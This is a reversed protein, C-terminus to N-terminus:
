NNKKVKNKKSIKEDIIKLAETITIKTTKLDTPISYNKKNYSLYDPRGKIGKKKIIKKQTAPHEGIVIEEKSKLHLDILEVAKNIGIETVDDEKLSIFKNNHKLYPGYPGISAMILKKSVPHEGVKRPLSLLKIAKELDIEENKMKKPISIRKPKDEDSSTELYRGYRGVKLLIEQNTKTHMGILKGDGSLEKNDENDGLAHSYACGNSEKSYNTCGIFPGSFAFKITLEGNDCKPCKIESHTCNINQTIPIVKCTNGLHNNGIHHRLQKSRNKYNYKHLKNFCLFCFIHHCNTIVYNDQFTDLCVNCKQNKKLLQSKFTDQYTSLNNSSNSNLNKEIYKKKTIIQPIILKNNVNVLNLIYNNSENNNPNQLYDNYIKYFLKNPKIIKKEIQFDNIHM